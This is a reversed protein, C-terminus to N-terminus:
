KKFYLNKIKSNILLPELIKHARYLGDNPAIDIYIKRKQATLLGGLDAITEGNSIGDFSFNIDFIKKFEEELIGLKNFAHLAHTEEHAQHIWHGVYGEPYFPYFIYCYTHIINNKGTYNINLHAGLRQIELKNDAYKSLDLKWAGLIADKHKKLDRVNGHDEFHQFDELEIVMDLAKM